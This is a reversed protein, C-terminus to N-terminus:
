SGQGYKAPKFKYLLLILIVLIPLIIFFIKIYDVTNPNDKQESITDKPQDKSTEEQNKPDSKEPTPKEETPKEEEPKEPTPKEPEPEPEPEPPITKNYFEIEEDEGKGIISSEEIVYENQFNVVKIKVTYVNEDYEIRESGKKEKIKYYHIGDNNYKIPGFTIRGNEDNVAKLKIGETLEKGDYDVEELEFEFEKNTLKDDLYKNAYITFYTVGRSTITGGIFTTFAGSVENSSVHTSKGNVTMSVFNKLTDPLITSNTVFVIRVNKNTNPHLLKVIVTDDEYAFTYDTDKTLLSGQGYSTGNLELSYVKITQDAYTMSDFLQDSIIVEDNDTLENPYDVDLNVDITWELRVNTNTRGLLRYRKSLASPIVSTGRANKSLVEGDYELKINNTVNLEVDTPEEHYEYKERDVLFEYNVIVKTNAPLEDLIIIFQYEGNKNFELEKGDINTIHITSPLDNKNTLHNYLEEENGETVLKISLDNISLYKGFESSLESEDTIIVNKRNLEKSDVVYEWLTSELNNDKNGNYNKTINVPYDFEMKKTLAYAKTVIYGKELKAENNIYYSDTKKGNQDRYKDIDFHTIYSIEINSNKSIFDNNDTNKFEFDLGDIKINNKWNDVFEGNNYVITDNVKIQLDKITISKKIAESGQIDLSDKVKLVEDLYGTSINITWKSDNNNPYEVSKNIIPMSSKINIYGSSASVSLGLSPDRLNNTATPEYIYDTDKIKLNSDLLNGDIASRYFAEFDVISGYSLYVKTNYDFGEGTMEIFSPHDNGHVKITGSMGDKEFTYEGPDIVGDKKYLSVKNSSKIIYIEFNYIKTNDLILDNLTNATTQAETGVLESPLAVSYKLEDILSYKANETKGASNFTITANYETYITNDNNTSKEKSISLNDLYKGTANNNIFVHIKHNEHDVYNKPNSSEAENVETPLPTYDRIAESDTLIYFEKGGYNNNNRYTKLLQEGDTEKIGRHNDIDFTLDYIIEIKSGMPINNNSNTINVTYLNNDDPNFTISSGSWNSIFSGNSYITLPNTDNFPGYYYIKLNNIELYKKLEKIDDDTFINGTYTNGLGTLIDKIEINPVGSYGIQATLKNRTTDKFIYKDPAPDITKSLSLDALISGAYVASADGYSLNMYSYFPDFSAYDNKKVRNLLSYLKEDLQVSQKKILDEHMAIEDTATQYTVKVLPNHKREGLATILLSFGNSMKQLGNMYDEGYHSRLCGIDKSNIGSCSSDINYRLYVCIGDNNCKKNEINQIDNKEFVIKSSNNIDVSLNILKTYNAAEGEMKDTYELSGRYFIPYELSNSYPMTPNSEEPTPMYNNVSISHYTDERIQWNSIRENSDNDWYSSLFTKQNTLERNLITGKDTYFLYPVESGSRSYTSGGLATFQFYIDDQQSTNPDYYERTFFSLVIKHNNFYSAIDGRNFYYVNTGTINLSNVRKFYTNSNDLTFFSGFGRYKTCVDKGNYKTFTSCYYVTDNISLFNPVTDPDVDNKNVVRHDELNYYENNYYDTILRQNLPIAVYYITEYTSANLEEYESTNIEINWKIYGNNLREGEISTYKNFNAELKGESTNGNGKGNSALSTLDVVDGKSTKNNHSIRKTEARKYYFEIDVKSKEINFIHMKFKPNNRYILTSSSKDYEAYEGRGNNTCGNEYAIKYTEPDIVVYIYRGNYKQTSKWIYPGGGQQLFYDYNNNLAEIIEKELSPSSDNYMRGDVFSSITYNGYYSFGVKSNDIYIDLSNESHNYPNQYNSGCFNFNRSNLYYNFSYNDNNPAFRRNDVEVSIYNSNSPEVKLKHVFSNYTEQYETKGVISSTITPAEFEQKFSSTSMLPTTISNSADNYTVSASFTGPKTTYLESNIEIRWEPVKVFEQGNEAEFVIILGNILCAYPNNNLNNISCYKQQESSSYRYDLGSVFSSAQITVKGTGYAQTVNCATGYLSNRSCSLQYNNLYIKINEFPNQTTWNMGIGSGFNIMMTGKTKEENQPRKDKLTITYKNSQYIDNVKSLISTLEYPYPEPEPPPTEGPKKVWFQLSNLDEINLTKLDLVQNYITNSLKLTFQFNASLETIDEIEEFRIKFRYGTPGEEYIGGYAKAKGSKFLEIEQGEENNVIAKNDPIIYSPIDLYYYTNNNILLNGEETFFKNMEILLLLTEDVTLYKIPPKTDTYKYVSAIEKEQNTSSVIRGQTDLLTISIDKAYNYLKEEEFEETNKEKYLLQNTKIASFFNPRVNIIVFLLPIILLVGFM